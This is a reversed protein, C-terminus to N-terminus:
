KVWISVSGSNVKFEGWGDANITVTDTRNGTLDHWVEGAKSQGVYMWKSGGPGDTILTALGSNPHGADGERTWGIIDWHDIYDHQAGYTYDKRAKLIPDLKDKMSAINKAPIGYYDGYFLSPYGQERTLIFAYALPKFWGQVWSELAQGPQTDHNDVFTVAHTPHHKMMTSNWLNRMDYYGGSDSASKFNHHLPVDFLSMNWGVKNEYNELAALSNNWYEGVAFLNKGTAARQHNVWDRMFDFKIHKVADLRYGDLNLTNTYWEGWKKLETQVEPHEMDIDAFMLYDYNGKDHDVEEDWQKGIGRFKYIRSLSRSQDWDTGNFHYWKWKFDSYTNARGDFNFKTWAEIWYNESTEHNRDNPDVEVAEVWETGDSGGKHNMVVDGYVQIGNQHLANVAAVLQDKTGYKTRTTGKQNFEGLDYLDYAGYGVDNVSTGKYAPPIWIGTIGMNNLNVADNKLKDWHTGDSALDWEFYQMMTGNFGSASAKQHASFLLLSVVMLFAFFLNGVKKWGFRM